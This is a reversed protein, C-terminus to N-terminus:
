WSLLYQRFSWGACTRTFACIKGRPFIAANKSYYYRLIWLHESECCPLGGAKLLWFKPATATVFPMSWMLHCRILVLIWWRSPIQGKLTWKTKLLQAARCPLVHLPKLLAKTWSAIFKKRINKKRPVSPKLGGVVSMNPLLPHRERSSGDWIDQVGQLIGDLICSNELMKWCKLSTWASTLGYSAMMKLDATQLIDWDRHM